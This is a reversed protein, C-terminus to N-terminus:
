TAEINSHDEKDKHSTVTIITWVSNQVFNRSRFMSKLLSMCCLQICFNQLPLPLLSPINLFSPPSAALLMLALVPLCHPGWCCMFCFKFCRALDGTKLHQFHSHQWSSFQLYHLSLKQPIVLCDSETLSGSDATKFIPKTHAVQIFDYINPM